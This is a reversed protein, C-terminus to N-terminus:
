SQAKLSSIRGSWAWLLPHIDSKCHEASKRYKKMVRKFGVPNSAFEGQAHVMLASYKTAKAMQLTTKVKEMLAEDASKGFLEYWGKMVDRACELMDIKTACAPGDMKLLTNKALELVVEETVEGPESPLGDQWSEAETDAGKAFPLVLALALQVQPMEEELVSTEIVAVDLKLQEFGAKFCQCEAILADNDQLKKMNVLLSQLAQQSGPAAKRAAVSTGLQQWSAMAAQLPCWAEIVKVMSEAKTASEGVLMKNSLLEQMIPLCNEIDKYSAATVKSYQITASMV